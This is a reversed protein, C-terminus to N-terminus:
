SLCNTLNTALNNMLTFYMEASPEIDVGLPDLTASKVMTGEIVTQVLRDSFQPERFVCRVEYEELNERIESLNYPSPSLEPHITIAGVGLLNYAYEFYQYADHFVIFPVDQYEHLKDELDHNLMVLKNITDRANKRYIEKNEPYIESLEKAIYSVIGIANNPDLWVHLDIDGHDHGEHEDLFEYEEECLFEEHIEEAFEQEDHDDHIEYEIECIIEEHEHEENIDDHEHFDEHGIEDHEIHSNFMEECIIEEHELDDFEIEHEEHLEEDHEHLEEHEFDNLSEFMEECDIEDFGHDDYKIWSDNDRYGLLRINSDLAVPIPIVRRPLTALSRRLFTEFDEDIYFIVEAERMAKVQSPKLNYNHPSGSGTILLGAEATDGLVSQVLSHLPKITTIIKSDNATASSAVVLNLCFLSLITLIKM